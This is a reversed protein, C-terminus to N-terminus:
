SCIFPFYVVKSELHNVKFVSSLLDYIVNSFVPLFVLATRLGFIHIVLGIHIIKNGKLLQMIFGTSEWVDKLQNRTDTM